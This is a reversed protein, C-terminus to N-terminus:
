RGPRGKKQLRNLRRFLADCIQGSQEHECEPLSADFRQAQSHTSCLTFAFVATGILKKM